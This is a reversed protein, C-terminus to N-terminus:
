PVSKAPSSPARLNGFGIGQILNKGEFHSLFLSFRKEGNPADAIGGTLVVDNFNGFYSPVPKAALYVLGPLAQDLLILGLLHSEEGGKSLAARGNPGKRLQPEVLFRLRRTANYVISQTKAPKFAGKADISFQEGREADRVYARLLPTPLVSLLSQPLQNATGPMFLRPRTLRFVGQTDSLVRLGYLDAIARFIATPESGTDGAISIRKSGLDEETVLRQTQSSMKKIWDAVTVTTIPLNSSVPFPPSPEVPLKKGNIQAQVTISPVNEEDYFADPTLIGGSIDHGTLPTFRARQTGTMTEYGFSTGSAKSKEVFFVDQTTVATLRRLSVPLWGLHDVLYFESAVRLALDRQGESLTSVPVGVQIKGDAQGILGTVPKGFSTAGFEVAGNHLANLQSQTFSDRINEWLALKLAITSQKQSAASARPLFRATIRDADRATAACEYLTVCPLDGQFSFRKRLLFIRGKQEAEYDYARAIEGVLIEAPADNPPTLNELPEEKFPQDEAIIVINKQKAIRTIADLFSGRSKAALAPNPRASTQARCLLGRGQLGLLFLTILFAFCLRQM